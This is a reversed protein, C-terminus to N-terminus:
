PMRRKEKGHNNEGGEDEKENYAHNGDSVSHEGSPKNLLHDRAEGFGGHGKHGGPKEDLFCITKGEDCPPMPPPMKTLSTGPSCPGENMFDGLDISITIGIGKGPCPPMCEPMM